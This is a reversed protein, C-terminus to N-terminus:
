KFIIILGPVNFALAGDRFVLEREVAEGNVTVTGTGDDGFAPGAALALGLSFAAAARVSPNYHIHKM